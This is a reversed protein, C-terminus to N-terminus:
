EIAEKPLLTISGLSETQVVTITQQRWLELIALVTTVLAERGPEDALLEDLQMGGKHLRQLVTSMRERVNMTETFIRHRVEGGVRKLVARFALLLADLDAEPLPREVDRSEPFISRVFVDRGLRPRENLEEALLRYQEYAILQAALEARPDIANGEEDMEPRPLLMRSKLQMLTSAMVLYDGAVELDLEKQTELIELYQVTIIALPIDFIDMEQSRILHLLVDLPGEFQDLQVPPLAHPADEHAILESQVAQNM